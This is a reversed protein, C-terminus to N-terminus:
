ALHMDDEAPKGHARLWVGLRFHTHASAIEPTIHPLSSRAATANFACRDTLV